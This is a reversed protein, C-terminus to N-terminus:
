PRRGAHAGTLSAGPSNPRSSGMPSPWPRRLYELAREHGVPRCESCRMRRCNGPSIRMTKARGPNCRREAATIAAQNAFEAQARHAHQLNYDLAEPWVEGRFFHHALLDVEATGDGSRGREMFHGIDGHLTRRLEFSLSEYAVEQIVGHRFTHSSGELETFGKRGLESLDMEITAPAGLRPYAGGLDEAQFSRGYVSAVRLVSRPREALEDM